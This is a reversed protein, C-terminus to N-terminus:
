NHRISVSQFVSKNDISNSNVTHKLETTAKGPTSFLAKPLSLPKTVTTSRVKPEPKPKVTGMNFTLRYHATIYHKMRKLRPLTEIIVSM